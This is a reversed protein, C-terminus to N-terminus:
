YHYDRETIRSARDYFCAADVAVELFRYGAVRSACWATVGELDMLPRLQPDDYSMAMLLASFREVLPEPASPGVTVWGVSKSPALSGLCGPLALHMLLPVPFSAARISQSQM